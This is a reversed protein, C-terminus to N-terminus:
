EISPFAGIPGFKKIFKDLGTNGPRLGFYFLFPTSLIQKNGNYYNQTRKIIFNISNNWNISDWNGENGYRTYLIGSTPNSETGGTVWLYTFGPYQTDYTTHNDTVSDEIIDFELFNEIDDSSITTGTITLGSFTYTIPPLLYRDSPNDTVGTLNYGYTMGQLPQIQISSYDWSQNDKTNNNYPGFGDGKKDWLYFPIQQSSETLRGVDNLCYRVKTGDEDFQMTIPLPGWIGSNDTVGSIYSGDSKRKFVNYYIEPDLIQYSFGFYKQNQLNFEEIGVENNISILQLIDGDLVQKGFGNNEFGQNDFFNNISFDESSETDMRYNIALGLLEGFSQFSSPGISRVISCSPDLTEDTCIEKIFEDRPGLDVMTTPHGIRKVTTYFPYTPIPLNYTDGFIVGSSSATTSRYYFRKVSDGSETEKVKYYLLNKCYNTRNVNLELSSENKWRVKAKFQFFYLSGSLWNDIFGYNVIGGCFLLGVRKRRRYEKLIKFIRGSSQTGPIFSFIGNSFETYAKGNTDAPTNPSFIEGDYSTPLGYDDNDSLRTASVNSGYPLSGSSYPTRGTGVYYTEIIDENYPVDYISCGSEVEETTTSDNELANKDRIDCQYLMTNNFIGKPDNFTLTYGTCVNYIDLNKTIQFGTDQSSSVESLEVIIITSTGGTYTLVYDNQNNVFNEASTCQNVDWILTAGSCIPSEYQITQNYSDNSVNLIRNNELSSGSINITGVKCYNVDSESQATGFENEGNCEECEPYNILYLKRQSSNQFRYAVKKIFKSLKSLPWFDIADSFQHLFYALTNTLFFILLNSLHEFFLLIDSILLQFSYKKFGFNVPPTLTSNACDNEESPVLDKLGIFKDKFSATNFYSGHFSSVTYVKNYTLKFFYDQPYYIGGKNNLIYNEIAHQPYDDYNTSFAYSKDKSNSYERINPVLYDASSRVRELGEKSLSFRFRYCASTPIGKNIDNTIEKEGFENTYVYDMNMPVSFMFSGDEDIDKNLQINELIPRYEDDKRITFRIADVIGTKTVLDCKTGMRSRPVCNKNVSNKGTDTFTGGIIYAKPEIRVGKNSLDFDTRTIGIECLNENGWFPYVDITQNFSVIQPLSDIDESSKFTYENKFSDIGFGQNIFDDPTLSFCGIDSLDVDVHITQTGIPVGWIMFDGSDNTKVTYKYYKEYVELIEERNLIDKQDPFTGTPTHGSHQKRSPLLNYRYGDDNKDLVTTYPYLTNIVSDELDEENISTFISVRANPVGLGNNISIRGVVVGYDSCMSTYIDSQTFKLSLIELLDFDNKLEVIIKQDFGIRTSIRHKQM